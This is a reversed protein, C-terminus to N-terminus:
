LHAYGSGHALTHYRDDSGGLGLMHLFSGLCGLYLEGWGLHQLQFHQGFASAYVGAARPFM